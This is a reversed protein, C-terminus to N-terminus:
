EQRMGSGSIIEIMERTVSAQRAKNRMQILMNRLEQANDSAAKMSIMRLGYEAMLSEVLLLRIKAAIFKPLLELAIKGADPDLIFDPARGAPKELPLLGAVFPRYRSLSEYHMHAVYVSGANGELFQRSLVSSIEDASSFSYRGKVQRLGGSVDYGRKKFYTFGKKGVFSMRVPIGQSKLVFEEAAKIVAANYSGCLGTDSTIVCLGVSLGPSGKLFPHSVGADVAFLDNFMGEMCRYYERSSALLDETHKLNAVSVMQMAGTIKRTNGISRIRSKIQKISEPM